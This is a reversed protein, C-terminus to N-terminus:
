RHTTALLEAARLFVAARDEFRWEAWDRQAQLASRVAQDITARDAQHARALVRRHCHPSVVDQTIGTRVERGGVVAPIDVQQAGVKELAAKLADREPSGPAYSLVTENKPIPINPTGSM